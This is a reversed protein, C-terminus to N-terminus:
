QGAGAAPNRALAAEVDLEILIDDGVPGLSDTMGFDSRKIRGTANFGLNMPNAASPTGGIFTVDFSAPKTVGLLTLNGSLVGTTASTQKAGTSVFTITPFKDANLFQPGEIQAAFGPVNTELSKADVVANLASAAIDNPKWTITGTMKNLRFVSWSLGNHPVKIILAVHPTSLRYTGEPTKTVDRTFAKMYCGALTPCPKGAIIQVNPAKVPKATQASAGAAVAAIAAAVM